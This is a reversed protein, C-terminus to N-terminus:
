LFKLIVRVAQVSTKSNKIFYKKKFPFKRLVLAYHNSVRVFFLLKLLRNGLYNSNIYFYFYQNIVDNNRVIIEFSFFIIFNELIIYNTINIKLLTGECGYLFILISTM